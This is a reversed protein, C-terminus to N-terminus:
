RAERKVGFHAPVNRILAQFKAVIRGVMENLRSGFAHPAHALDGLHATHALKSQRDRAPASAEPKRSFSSPLRIATRPRAM